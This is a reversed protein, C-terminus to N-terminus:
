DSRPTRALSVAGLSQRWNAGGQSASFKVRSDTVGIAPMRPASDRLNGVEAAAVTLFPRHRVAFVPDFPCAPGPIADPFALGIGM